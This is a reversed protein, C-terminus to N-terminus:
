QIRHNLGVKTHDYIRYTTMQENTEGVFGEIISRVYIFKMKEIAIDFTIM